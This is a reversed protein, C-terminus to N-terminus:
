SPKGAPRVGLEEYIMLLYGDPDQVLIRRLGREVGGARFWADETPQYLPWGSRALADLVRDLHEVQIQFMVGRGLPHDMSGTEYADCRQYLMVHVMGLTLYVFEDEPREYAVEFGIRERWFSLSRDLDTVILAPALRAWGGEPPGDTKSDV